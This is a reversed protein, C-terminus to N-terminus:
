SVMRQAPQRFDQKPPLGIGHPGLFRLYEQCIAESMQEPRFDRLVRARGALGHQRSRAPDDFYVRLADTLVVADHPPVLCGTEGDVVGDVCGPVRSAVVALEMAAAELLVTNFGERYTPLALLDMARYYRPVDNVGVLGALHIRPDTHLINEIEPPVPDQPEFPGVMLLHLKPYHERLAKWAQTLEIIGKDRVIRGVFGLVQADAPINQAKRIDQRANADVCAPNFTHEADIGDITGNLLVKIRSPDCLRESIALLRVSESVCYVQNALGCALKESWRLLLRRLGTATVMPLGHVHYIRVPVGCMWAGIMALLGGKPTHGHVIDPRLRRLIRSFRWLSILDRLPTIRRSMPLEHVEAKTREAFEALAAGPSSLAHIDFGRGSAHTVQRVLFNLTQPVTTVHLLRPKPADPTNPLDSM